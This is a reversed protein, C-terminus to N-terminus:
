IYLMILDNNKFMKKLSCDLTKKKKPLNNRGFFFFVKMQTLEHIKKYTCACLLTTFIIVYGTFHPINNVKKPNTRQRM